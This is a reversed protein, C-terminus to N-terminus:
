TSQEPLGIARIEVRGDQIRVPLRDLPRPPPGAAVSGDAHFAGGHCPCLFLQAGEEWRVACGVHTCYSTFASFRDAADRRVWAANRSAYGAWPLAQLDRYVVKVTTGIEFGDVVGVAQWAEPDDPELPTVFLATWPVLVSSGAAAGAGLVFARLFRRREVSPPRAHECTGGADGSRTPDPGDEPHPPADHESM